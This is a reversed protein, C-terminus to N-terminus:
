CKVNGRIISSALWKQLVVARNFYLLVAAREGQCSKRIQWKDSIRPSLRVVNKEGVTCKVCLQVTCLSWKSGRSTFKWYELGCGMLVIMDVKIIYQLGFFVTEPFKGGRSEFYSYVTQTGPPYQLHHTVQPPPFIYTFDLLGSVCPYNQYVNILKTMLVHFPFVKCEFM